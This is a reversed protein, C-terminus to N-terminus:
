WLIEDNSYSQESLFKAGIILMFNVFELQKFSKVLSSTFSKTAMFKLSHKLDVFFNYVLSLSSCSRLFTKYISKYRGLFM